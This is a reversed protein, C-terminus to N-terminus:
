HRHRKPKPGLTLSVVTGVATAGAAPSSSKVVLAPPKQGSKAKPKTVEGVRCGAVVLATRAQGLTKARLKPVVCPPIVPPVIPSPAGMSAVPGVIIQPETVIIKTSNTYSIPASCPSFNEAADSATASFQRTFGDPVTVLLGPSELQEAWGGARPAGDCSPGEFIEVDTGPEASGIIRPTAFSAPSVPSTTELTPAAPAETDPPPIRTYSVPASCSSVNEAADTATASFQSVSDEAAAVAIGPSALEAATGSALPSGECSAGLYIEIEAGAEASGVIGPEGESAPSAPETGQLLPPAPATSDEVYSVPESCASLNSWPDSARASFAGDTDDAVTVAIGGSALEAADGTALAEGACASGEYIEVTSGAEASGLLRPENENAPSAPDTGSLVPMTPAETDLDALATAADLRGGSTTKGALSPDPDVGALLAHRVAAVSAGPQSSFLLAAAGSVHPAAMSTGQLFAYSPPTSLPANCDIELDDLWLGSSATPSPGATYRVRLGVTSGALGTMPATKFNALQSGSSGPLQFTFTSFGNKFVILTATGGELSVFDRGSLRCAGYGAPVAVPSSLTSSRSANAAPAAEPSDSIGFSTLPAEDTRAFGGDIGTSQWKTGFDEQEFDDKVFADSAPYTSLIETGPAGLDVNEAGWDSFSALQDAQDTAAVCVVNEVAGDTATSGPAYNCPYHAVADNDQSDNGAAVVFLTDPNEALANLTLISKTTGSLSMNAVRAGNAGAYNIAAIISSTPCRSENLAPANACVRLPMMRINQAVGTIGVENNGAAGITGATHVGHGGSILDDDTPDNDQSLSESNTGVFDYGHVDDVYGNDDDDIGNGPIEAGNIWAVPGLDPSDFRYGSDIDAVVTSPTGVTSDWAGPADIDAGATAGSFGGIGTGANELGWEQDFLPDDPIGTPTSYGDREAAVVAPNAELEAIAEGPAQGPKTEVLQFQRNGLDGAFAVDAEARAAARDGRDAIPTWQVIVGDPSYKAATMGQAASARLELTAASGSSTALLAILLAALTVPVIRPVRCRYVTATRYSLTRRAM